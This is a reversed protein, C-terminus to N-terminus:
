GGKRRWGSDVRGWRDDRGFFEPRVRRAGSRIREPSRESNTRVRVGRGRWRTRIFGREATCVGELVRAFLAALSSCGSVAEGGSSDSRM